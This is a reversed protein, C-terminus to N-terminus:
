FPLGGNPDDITSEGGADERERSNGETASQETAPEGYLDSGDFDPAGGSDSKQPPRDKGASNASRKQSSAGSEPQQKERTESDPM